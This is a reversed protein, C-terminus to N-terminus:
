FQFDGESRTVLHLYGNQKVRHFREVRKTFTNTWDNIFHAYIRTFRLNYFNM